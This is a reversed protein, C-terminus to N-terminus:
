KGSLTDKPQWPVQAGQSLANSLSDINHWQPIPYHNEKIYMEFEEKSPFGKEIKKRTDIIYWGTPVNILNVLTSDSDNKEDVKGSLVFIISDKVDVQKVNYTGLSTYFKITWSNAEIEPDTKRVDYPKLLPVRIWDWGGTTTYFDDQKKEKNQKSTNWCGCVVILLSVVIIQRKDM